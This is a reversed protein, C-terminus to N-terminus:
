CGSEVGAPYRSRHRVACARGCFRQKSYRNVTWPKGCGECTRREDDVGSARRHASKCRNSCFRAATVHLYSEGCWECVAPKTKATQWVARAHEAHWARGEDTSHWGAALPRVAALHALHEPTRGRESRDAAHRAAHEAPTLCELRDPDTTALDDPHRHHIEWGDPIPGREHKWVERHLSEIGRARDGQGPCYYPTGPYNRFTVGRYTVSAM